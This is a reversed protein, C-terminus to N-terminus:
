MKGQTKDNKETATWDNPTFLVPVRSSPFPDIFPKGGRLTEELEALPFGSDITLFARDANTTELAANPGCSEKMRYGLIPLLPKAEACNSIQIVGGPGAFTMLERAQDMYWNLLILFETPKRKGRSVREGRRQPGPSAVSGRTFSESQHRGHPPFVASPRSHHCGRPLHLSLCRLLPRLSHEAPRSGLPPRRPPRGGLLLPFFLVRLFIFLFTFPHTPPIM